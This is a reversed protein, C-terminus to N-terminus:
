RHSVGSCRKNPSVVFPWAQEHICLAAWKQISCTTCEYVYVSVSKMVTDQQARSCWNEYDLLNLLSDFSNNQVQQGPQGTFLYQEGQPTAFITLIHEWFWYVHDVYISSTHSDTVNLLKPLPSATISIFILHSWIIWLCLRQPSKVGVGGIWSVGKIRRIGIIQVALTWMTDETAEPELVTGDQIRNFFLSWRDVQDLLDFLYLLYVSKQMSATPTTKPVM